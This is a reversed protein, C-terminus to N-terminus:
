FGCRVWEGIPVASVEGDDSIKIEALCCTGEGEDILEVEEGDTDFMVAAPRTQDVMGMDYPGDPEQGPGYRDIRVKVLAM